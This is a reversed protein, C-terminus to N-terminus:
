VQGSQTNSTILSCRIIVYVGYQIRTTCKEYSNQMKTAIRANRWAVDLSFRTLIGRLREVRVVSGYCLFLNFYLKSRASSANSSAWTCKFKEYQHRELVDRRVLPPSQWM